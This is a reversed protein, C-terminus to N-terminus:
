SLSSQGHMLDTVALDLVEDRWGVLENAGQGCFIVKGANSLLLLIAGSIENILIDAWKKRKTFDFIKNQQQQQSLASSSPQSQYNSAMTPKPPLAVSM